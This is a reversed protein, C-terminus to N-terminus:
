NPDFEGNHDAVWQMKKWHVFVSKVEDKPLESLIETITELLNKECELTRGSFQQKLRGFLYFEAIPMDPSYLPHPVRVCRHSDMQEQVHRVTHYKSNGFHLNLKRRDIDGLQQTNWNALPLLVNNVFCVVTFSNDSPLLDVIAFEKPNFFVLLMLKTAGITRRARQPLEKGITM